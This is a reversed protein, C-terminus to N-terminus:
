SGHAVLELDGGRLLRLVAVQKRKASMRRRHEPAPGDGGARHAREEGPWRGTGDHRTGM